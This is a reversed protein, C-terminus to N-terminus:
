KIPIDVLPGPHNTPTCTYGYSHGAVFSFVLLQHVTALVHGGAPGARVTGSSHPEAYESHSTIAAYDGVKTGDWSAGSVTMLLLHTEFGAPLDAHSFRVNKMLPIHEGPNTWEPNDSGVHLFADEDPPPPDVHPGAYQCNFAVDVGHPKVPGYCGTIVGLAAVVCAWGAARRM